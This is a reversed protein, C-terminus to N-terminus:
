SGSASPSSTSLLTRIGERAAELSLLNAQVAAEGSSRVSQALQLAAEASEMVRALLARLEAELARRSELVREALDNAVLTSNMEFLARLYAAADRCVADRTAGRPRVLDLLARLPTGQVLPALQRYYYRSPQRFGTGSAVEDPLRDALTPQVDRVRALFGNAHAVLRAMGDGYAREAEASETALWPEIWDRATRRALALSGDRLAPGSMTPLASVSDRLAVSAVAVAGDLFQARRREFLRELRQQEAAFVPSLEDLRTAIDDLALKLQAIRWESEEIPRTLTAGREDIEALLRRGLRELGKHHAQRLLFRSSDREVTSLASRMELWAYSHESSSQSSMSRLQETASVHYVPGVPRGLRAALTREAFAAAEARDSECFRDAKNLVVLVAPAFRAVAEVLSLEDGTVPPDVGVVILAVDVHPLFDHTAGTNGDLSSGIGPTDVLCMGSALLPSPVGVEVATVGLRNESNHEESVFRELADPEIERWDRSGLQIRASLRPQYRVVTPVATVPVIGTPLVPMGILANILSSKGRKFQGLLAVNFRGEALRDSLSEAQREVELVGLERALQALVTLPERRSGGDQEMSQRGDGSDASVCLRRTPEM